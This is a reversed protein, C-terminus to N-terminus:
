FLFDVKVGIAGKQMDNLEDKLPFMYSIGPRIFGFDYQGCLLLQNINRDNFDGGSGSAIFLNNFEAWLALKNIKYGALLSLHILVETDGEHKPLMV